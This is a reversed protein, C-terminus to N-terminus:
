PHSPIGRERGSNCFGKFKLPKKREAPLREEPQKTYGSVSKWEPESSSKVVM